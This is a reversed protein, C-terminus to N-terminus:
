LRGVQACAEWSAINKVVGADNSFYDVNFEPCSIASGLTLIFLLGTKKKSIEICFLFVLLSSNMNKLARLYGSFKSLLPIQIQSM